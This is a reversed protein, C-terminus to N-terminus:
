GEAEAEADVPDPPQKKGYKGAPDSAMIADVDDVSAQFNEDIRFKLELAKLKNLRQIEKMLGYVIKPLSTWFKEQSNRRRADNNKNNM